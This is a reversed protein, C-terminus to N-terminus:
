AFICRNHDVRGIVQNKGIVMAPDISGRFGLQEHICHEKALESFTIPLRKWSARSASLNEPMVLPRYSIVPSFMEVYQRM